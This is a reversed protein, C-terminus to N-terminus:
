ETSTMAKNVETTGRFSVATATNAVCVFSMAVITRKRTFLSTLSCLCSAHNLSLTTKYKNSIRLHEYDDAAKSSAHADCPACGCKLPVLEFKFAAVPHLNNSYCHISGKTSEYYNEVKHCTCRVNAQTRREGQVSGASCCTSTGANNAAQQVSKSAV